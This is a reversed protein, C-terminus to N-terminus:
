TAAEFPNFREFTSALTKIVSFFNGSKIGCHNLIEDINIKLPEVLLNDKEVSSNILEVFVDVVEPNYFRGKKAEIEQISKEIDKGQSNPYPRSGHMASFSDVVRLIQAELPIKNEKLKNPYGTGNYNEHHALVIQLVADWNMGKEKLVSYSFEVHDLIELIEIVGLDGEGDVISKDIRTKGIDHFRAAIALAALQKSKLKFLEGMRYCIVSVEKEHDIVWEPMHLREYNKLERIIETIEKNNHTDKM